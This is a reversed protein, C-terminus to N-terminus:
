LFLKELLSVAKALQPDKEQLLSARSWEVEFDPKVGIGEISTGDSTRPHGITYMFSDGNPLKMWDAILLYGSTREGVIGARSIAQLSGSFLEACSTSLVDQLIVIPGDYANEFPAIVRETIANRTEVTYLVQKETLLHAALSDLVRLYGGSNGRLDIVLGPADRMESLASIFPEVIPEAFHNFRIYGIGRDLNRSEFELFFPPHTKSLNTGPGRNARKISRAYRNGQGDLCGLKVTTGPPGYLQSLIRLTTNKKQSRENFPPIPQKEAESIIAGVSIDDIRTIEFGAKIGALAAPSGEDVSTVFLSRSALRVDVGISGKAFLTPLYVKLDDKSAVLLHSLDLEFLMRNILSRFGSGNKAASVQASYREYVDNWDLGNFSADYHKDRVTQWVTEFSAQNLCDLKSQCSLVAALLLFCSIFLRIVVVIESDM